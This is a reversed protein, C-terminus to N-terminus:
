PVDDDVCGLVVGGMYNGPPYRTVGVVWGAGVQGVFPDRCPMPINIVDGGIELRIFQSIMSNTRVHNWELIIIGNVVSGIESCEVQSHANTDEGNDEVVVWLSAGGLATVVGGSVGVGVAVVVVAMGSIRM